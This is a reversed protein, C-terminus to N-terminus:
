DYYTVNFPGQNAVDDIAEFLNSKKTASIKTKLFRGLATLHKCLGEGYDYAPRPKRNIAGNLSDPGIQSAGQAADNYAFRYMFDPCECDVKCKMKMADSNQGVKGKIFSISGKFPKDTVTTQPSSKYRFNWQENNNEVSVPLSRVNVNTAKEKREPTTLKLLDDYSMDETLISEFTESTGKTEDYLGEADMYLALDVIKSKLNKNPYKTYEFALTSTHPIFILRVWGYGFLIQYPLNYNKRLLRSHPNNEGFKKILYKAGWASHGMESVNYLHGKNDMWWRSAGDRQFQTRNENLTNSLKNKADSLKYRGTPLKLFQQTSPIPFGWKMLDEPNSSFINQGNLYGDVQVYAANPMEEFKNVTVVMTNDNMQSLYKKVEREKESIVEHLSEEFDTIRNDSNECDVLEKCGREIALDKLAKLKRPSLPEVKEDYDHYRYLLTPGSFVVRIFGLRYLESYSNKYDHRGLKTLVANAYSIHNEYRVAHFKGNPDLWGGYTYEDIDPEDEVDYNGESMSHYVSIIEKVIKRLDSKKINEGFDSDNIHHFKNRSDSIYENNYTSPRHNM